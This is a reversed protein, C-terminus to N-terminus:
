LEGARKAQINAVDALGVALQALRADIALLAHVTALAVQGRTPAALSDLLVAAHARREDALRRWDPDSM